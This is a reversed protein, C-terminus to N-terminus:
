EYHEWVANCSQQITEFTNMAADVIQGEDLDPQNELRTIFSKWQPGTNVGYGFFFSNDEGPVLGLAHHLNRSIVQGGLTSGQKVYLYGFEASVSNILFPQATNMNLVSVNHRRFDCELWDLIPSDPIDTLYNNERGRELMHYAISFGQLARHYQEATLSKKTLPLLLPHVHLAEHVDKTAERLVELM